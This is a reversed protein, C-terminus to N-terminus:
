SFFAKREHENAVRLSSPALPRSIQKGYKDFVANHFYTFPFRAPHEYVYGVVGRQKGRTIVVYTKRERLKKALSDTM